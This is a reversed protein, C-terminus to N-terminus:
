HKRRMNQLFIPVIQHSVAMSSLSVEWPFAYFLDLKEGSALALNLQNVSINRVLNVKCGILKETIKSAAESIKECDESTGNYPAYITVVYADKGNKLDATKKTGGNNCGTIAFVSVVAACCVATLKRIDM